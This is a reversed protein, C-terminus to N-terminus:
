SGSSSIPMKTAATRKRGHVGGIILQQDVEAGITTIFSLTELQLKLCLAKTLTKIPLGVQM